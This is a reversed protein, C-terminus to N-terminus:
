IGKFSFDFSLAKTNDINFEPHVLAGWTDDGGVGMQQSSVRIWTKFVRPLEYAHQAYDIQDPSYPLASFNMPAGWFMLGRGRADAVEAWRVDTKNGCESPRLYKAMNDVVRNEYVDIRAHKRDAYTEWAGRGYWKVHDYDADMTFLMGFEPLVGVEASPDMALHVDIQGDPYVTYTVSGDVAPKTATIFPFTVKVSDEQIDLSLFKMQRGHEYKNNSYMSAIKWQGGRMPLQNAIDNETMPRWFNPRPMDPLMEVGGYKYSALGNNAGSFLVEFNDGKVGINFWNRIVRFYGKHSAPYVMAGMVTQGWAVEHGAKAWPTDEKLSFSITEVYEGEVDPPVLPLDFTEESLPAVSVDFPAEAIVQGEKKLVAKGAFTDTNVFLNGNKVTVRGDAFKLRINQYNYKVEQMKPSSKRDEGGYAIGNGSFSYDTPRDGFDGGYAQYDEGYRNKKTLSQDIYDWIFGGQFLPETETLDTYKDMAGCSNGMAHTYECNIYPKDRHEKLYEQIQDVPAYMTSVMDTTDPYRPDNVVGEYHVLRTPDWAHFHKTEDYITSGGFAENGCSWILISPHNKDREFFSHARDIIMDHYDARDGPVVEELPIQKMLYATWDGHSELNTEDMVYLGLVDCMRYFSTKNPYHSTRVANINHRKMNVLDTWIDQDPLVRGSESCFEHRDAGKFVIRRGNLCMIHDKMEFSRFGVKESIYEVPVGNEDSVTLKLDYLNPGEASWLKPAEVPYSFHNEIALIEEEDLIKNEGDLLEIHVSGVATAKLDLVLDANQYADDLLTQIKMDQIHVKPITFLYVDRFIGSFRFFDQDECWSSATWKFVRVALKNEGDRIYPTLDFESVDFTDESYGVYTGNLWLAFGSEVGQFSIYVPGNAMFDPIEFYKVYDATPNFHMPIEGPRIEDTGEWPYQVNVYQPKDYGEMQIHAPVRIEDWDRCDCSDKWFGEPALSPNKAYHFYWIGNMLERADSIGKQMDEDRLYYEHDSHAPLRNQEFVRPDRVINFDFQTM